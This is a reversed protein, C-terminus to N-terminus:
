KLRNCKQDPSSMRQAGAKRAPLQRFMPRMIRAGAEYVHGGDGVYSTAIEGRRAGSSQWVDDARKFLPRPSHRTGLAGAAQHACLPTSYACWDECRLCRFVDPMGWAITKRSRGREGRPGIAKNVGDDARRKPRGRSSSAQLPAGSGCPKATRLCAREDTASGADVAGRRVNTVIAIRGEQPPPVRPLFCM